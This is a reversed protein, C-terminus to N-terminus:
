RFILLIVIVMSPAGILAGFLKRKFLAGIGAGIFAGSGMIIFPMALELGFDEHETDRFLLIVFTVMGFAILIACLVLDKRSFREM